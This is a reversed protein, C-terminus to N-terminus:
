KDFLIMSSNEFSLDHSFDCCFCCVIQLNKIEEALPLFDLFILSAESTLLVQLLEM